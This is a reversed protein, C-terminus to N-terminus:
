TRQRDLLGVTLRGIQALQARTPIAEGTIEAGTRAIAALAPMASPVLERPIALPPLTEYVKFAYPELSWDEQWIPNEVDPPTGMMFQEEGAADRVAVYSTAAHFARAAEIDRNSQAM